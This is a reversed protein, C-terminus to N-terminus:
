FENPRIRPNNNIPWDGYRTKTILYADLFTVGSHVIAFNYGDVKITVDSPKTLNVMMNYIEEQLGFVSLVDYLGGCWSQNFGSAAHCYMHTLGWIGTVSYGYNRAIIFKRMIGDIYEYPDKINEFNDTGSYIYPVNAKGFFYEGARCYGYVAHDSNPGTEYTMIGIFDFQEDEKATVISIKFLNQQADDKDWLDDIHLGFTASGVYTKKADVMNTKWKAATFEGYLATGNKWEYEWRKVQRVISGLQKLGIEHLEYNYYDAITKDDQGWMRETDIIIGRHKQQLGALEIFRKMLMLTKNFRVATYDNIYVEAEVLPMYDVALGNNYFLRTQNAILGDVIFYEDPIAAIQEYTLNAVAKNVDRGYQNWEKGYRDMDTKYESWNGNYATYNGRVYDERKPETLNFLATTNLILQELIPMEFSVNLGPLANSRVMIDLLDAPMETGNALSFNVELEPAVVNPDYRLTYTYVPPNFYVVAPIVVSVIAILALALAQRSKFQPMFKRANNTSKRALVIGIISLVTAYVWYPSFYVIPISVILHFGFYLTIYLTSKKNLISVLAIIFAGLSLCALAVPVVAEMSFLSGEAVPYIINLWYATVVIPIFTTLWLIVTIVAMLENKKEQLIRRFISRDRNEM